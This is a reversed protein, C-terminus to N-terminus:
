LNTEIWYSGDWRLASETPITVAPNHVIPNGNIGIVYQVTPDTQVEIDGGFKLNLNLKALISELADLRARVTNYLQGSPKVGLEYEINIVAARLNNHVIGNVPTSNDIVSPLTTETDLAAPYTITPKLILAMNSGRLYVLLKTYELLSHM